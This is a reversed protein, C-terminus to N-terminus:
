QAARSNLILLTSSDSRSPMEWGVALWDTFLPSFTTASFFSSSMLQIMDIFSYGDGIGYRATM